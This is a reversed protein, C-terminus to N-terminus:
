GEHGDVRLAVPRGDAPPRLVLQPFPIRVGADDLAQKVAVAVRHRVLWMEQIPASHWFRVCFDVTSEGFAEVLAEPPPSAEVGAVRRVAEEILERTAELDADYGVGVTLDTRRVPFATLNVIPNSLVEGNPILVRRGDLTRLVVARLNLDEVVGEFDASAIQDGPRFPRRLLLLIGALFNEFITRVAFALAVGGIGAATLLPGIRVGLQAVGYIVAASVVVLRIMRGLVRAGRPDSDGRSAVRPIVSGLGQGVVLGATVIILCRTWEATTAAILPSLDM